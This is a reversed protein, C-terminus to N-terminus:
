LQHLTHYYGKSAILEAHTGAEVIEGQRVVFIRDANKVTTLRHAIILTTREHCLEGMSKQILSESETDLSSTAEDFILIPPNKLFVRAISLRQRQGGSLKIGHEGAMTDFGDPLSQIFQLINANRAAEVLEAETADPRGFLINEAITTDFIFANQRVIGISDRLSAQSIDMVDHGDISVTGRDPEYFRPILAALTTKGAGSEGVLAVTKGAGIELSINKLIQPGDESYSFCVNDLRVAGRVMDLSVANARDKIEPELDMVETFREFSAAGQGRAADIVPM